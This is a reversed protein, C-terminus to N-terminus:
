AFWGRLLVSSLCELCGLREASPFGDRCWVDVGGLSGECDYKGVFSGVIFGDWSKM